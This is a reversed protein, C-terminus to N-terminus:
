GLVRVFSYDTFDLSDEEVEEILLIGPKKGLSFSGIEEEFGLAKAGNASAWKFLTELTLEPFAKKLLKIEHLISLFDNSALSDTGICINLQSNELLQVPPMKDEIFMNSSPCLCLSAKKFTRQIFNLDAEETFTNHVLIIPQNEFNILESFTEIPSKGSPIYKPIELGWSKFREIMEGKGEKFYRNEAASEQHHLSLIDGENLQNETLHLLKESLSYTSHPVISAREFKSKLQMADQMKVQALNEDLGYVEVFNRFMIKSDVKADVTLDTNCIDGVAVIGEEMMSEMAYPIAESKSERSITKKLYELRGIFDNIGKKQELRAAAFSLELHCHANVFGPVLFGEYTEDPVKNHMEEQSFVGLIKGEDDVELGGKRLPAGENTFIIDAQILKSM